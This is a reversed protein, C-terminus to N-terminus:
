NNFKECILKHTVVDEDNDNEMIMPIDYLKCLTIINEMEIATFKATTDFLSVDHQDKHKGFVVNPSPNNLHVLDILSHYKEIHEIVNYGAAYMHATDYTMGIYPANELIELIDDFKLRNGGEATTEILIKVSPSTGTTEKYKQIADNINSMTLLMGEKKNKNSGMHVVLGTAGIKDCFIMNESISKPIVPIDNALNVFYNIHVFKPINLNKMANFDNTTYKTGPFYNKPSGPFIQVATLKENLINKATKTLGDGISIHYGLKIRNENM